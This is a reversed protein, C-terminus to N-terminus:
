CDSRVFGKYIYVLNKVNAMTVSVHLIIFTYVILETSCLHTRCLGTYKYHLVCCSTETFHQTNYTFHLSMYPLKKIIVDCYRMYPYTILPKRIFDQLHLNIRSQFLHSTLLNVFVYVGNVDALKSIRIRLDRTRKVSKFVIVATQLPLGALFQFLVVCHM